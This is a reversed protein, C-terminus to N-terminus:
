LTICPLSVFNYKDKTNAYHIIVLVSLAGPRGFLGRSVSISRVGICPWFRIRSGRQPINSKKSLRGRAPVALGGAGLFLTHFNRYNNWDEICFLVQAFANFAHNGLRQAIILQNKYIVSACVIRGGYAIFVAAKVASYLNEM